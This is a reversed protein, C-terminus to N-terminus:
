MKKDNKRKKKKDKSKKKKKEVLREEDKSELIVDSEHSEQTFPAPLFSISQDTQDIHQNKLRKAQEFVYILYQIRLIFFM